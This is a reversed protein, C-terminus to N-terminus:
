ITIPNNLISSGNSIFILTQSLTPQQLV